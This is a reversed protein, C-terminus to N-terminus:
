DAVDCCTAAVVAVVVEVVAAAVVVVVVPLHIDEVQVSHLMAWCRYVPCHKQFHDKLLQILHM